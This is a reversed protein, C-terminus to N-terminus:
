NEGGIEAISQQDSISPGQSYWRHESDSVLLTAFSFPNSAAMNPPLLEAESTVTCDDDLQRAPRGASKRKAHANDHFNVQYAEGLKQDDKYLLVPHQKDLLWEPDYRVQLRSNALHSPAEFLINELSLTADHKIKRNVKLMFYEDVMDPRAILKVRDAQSMFFDLPSMGLSTHVKRHYDEELWQWYLTNLEELSKLKTPDIRSLFRSRVTNFYREIKGKSTPTFPKAHILSCGLGACIIALQDSRYIKGNDTYLLTPIGRRVVAEKLVQRMSLFNQSFSFMSYTVYRSADDIFAILYTQKKTKGVKIYVGYMLDAQWLENIYQHSFRKLEPAEQDDGALKMKDPNNALFRYYTSQSLLNPLIVGDKVLEEYIIRNNARPLERKKDVIKEILESSIKRSQGRDSRYGPKLADLGGHRYDSLWKALTKPSYTKIGYHPLEIPNSCLDEFYKLQTDVQGNLVPAIFSFRKLAILERTENELV